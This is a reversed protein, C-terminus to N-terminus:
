LLFVYASLLSERFRYGGLSAQRRPKLGIHGLVPIGVGTIRRITETMEVGGELKVAEVQGEQIYRIASTLAQDPGREYTGFPLDGILFPSKCGNAVAKCHHIMMDLTIQNTNDHGLAVMALSDGVLCLEIGAREVFLGSPYDHATM